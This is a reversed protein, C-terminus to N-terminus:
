RHFNGQNREHTGGSSEFLEPARFLRGLQLFWNLFYIQSFTQQGGRCVKEKKQILHKSSVKLYSNSPVDAFFSNVSPCPESLCGGGSVGVVWVTRSWAIPWVTLCSCGQGCPIQGLVPTRISKSCLVSTIHSSLRTGIRIIGSPSILDLLAHFQCHQGTETIYKRGKFLLLRTLMRGDVQILQM